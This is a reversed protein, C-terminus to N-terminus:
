RLPQHDRSWMHTPLSGRKEGELVVIGVNHSHHVVRHPGHHGTAIVVLLTFDAEDNTVGARDKDRGSAPTELQRQRRERSM